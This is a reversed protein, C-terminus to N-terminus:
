CTRSKDNCLWRKNKDNKRRETDVTSVRDVKIIDMDPSRDVTGLM